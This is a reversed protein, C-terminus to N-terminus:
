NVVPPWAEEASNPSPSLRGNYRLEDPPYDLELSLEFGASKALESAEEIIDQQRHRAFQLKLRRLPPIDGRRAADLRSRLLRLIGEDTFQCIGNM